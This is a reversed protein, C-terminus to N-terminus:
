EMYGSVSLYFCMIWMGIAGVTLNIGIHWWFYRRNAEATGLIRGFYQVMAGILAVGPFMITIDMATLNGSTYLNAMVGVSGGTSLIASCLVVLADGPLNWLQMVPAATSSVFDLFKTIKLIEIIVFAMIVNPWMSGSALQWGKRAGEVFLDTPSRYSAKVPKTTEM